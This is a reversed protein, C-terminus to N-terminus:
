RWLERRIYDQWYGKMKAIENRYLDNNIYNESELCDEKYDYFEEGVVEDRYVKENEYKVWVTYRYRNNRFSYGMVGDRPYQSVAYDKKNDKEKGSIIGAVSEGHLLEPSTIGALECLSPYIDLFETVSEIERSKCHPHSIILPVRTAEELNSHKCWLGHDGLHWGHDGFLVVITNDAMGASELADIVRGVQADIYSVCAYYGHILEQEKSEPIQINYKSSTKYCDKIDSYTCLEGSKHYAYWGVNNGREIFEARPLSERDYMDWYKQPATFPLHPKQFGVAMFLPKDEKYNTIYEIACNAVAGDIYADDPVDACETSPKFTNIAQKTAEYGQFGKARAESELKKGKEVNEPDLYWGYFKGQYNRNRYPEYDLYPESWSLVDMGNDVGRSDFIKGVGVVNYGNNKFNQPLTVVDPNADRIKGKLSRVKTKDPALGTLLSARSATSIAQQCYVSTFLAGRSALLDINPTSVSSNGYCGLIPKLDDIAIFLVNEVKASKQEAQVINPMATM